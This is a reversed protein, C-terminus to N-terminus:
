GFIGTTQNAVGAAAGSAAQLAGTHAGAIGFAGLKSFLTDSMFNDTTVVEYQFPSGIGDDETRITTSYSM